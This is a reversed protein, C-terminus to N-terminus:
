LSREATTNRALAKSPASNANGLERAVVLGAQKTVVNQAEDRAIIRVDQESLQQVEFEKSTGNNEITVNLVTEGKQESSKTPTLSMQGRRLADLNDVGINSTTQADMVYEQGHVFGAVDGIGGNGTYGGNMYGAVNQKRIAQVNAMGAAVAAAAAAVGLAPGVYPIGAMAAYASTASQYTNIVAQAIAAAKGIRAMKKSNSNQLGALNGLFSQTTQLKQAQERNWVQMKMASYTQENILDAERMAKLQKYYQELQAKKSEIGEATGSTDLGMNSLFDNAVLPTDEKSLEGSARMSGMIGIEQMKNRGSLDDAKNSISDRIQQEKNLQQITTLQKRLEETELATVNIGDEQLKKVHQRLAAEVEREKSSMKLLEIEEAWERKLKGLPDLLDKYHEKLKATYNTHQEQTMLGAKLAADLTKQDETYRKQVQLLPDVIGLLREYENTLKELARAAEKAAKEASNDAKAKKGKAAKAAQAAPSSPTGMSESLDVGSGGRALRQKAKIQANHALNKVQEEMYGGQMAFGANLSDALNAGYEKYAKENVEKRQIKVADLMGLNVMSRLRNIGSIGANITNEIITMVANYMQNFATIVVSPIGTFVRVVGIGLGTLLGAIADVVRATGQLVGIFGGNIGDFFGSYANGAGETMAVHDALMASTGDKNVMFLYDFIDGVTDGLWQWADSLGDLAAAGVDALTTIDDIGANIEDGMAYLYLMVAAIATALAALPHASIIAFATSVARAFALVAGPAFAVAVGIGVAALAIAIVDLNNAILSMANYFAGSVISGKNLEGFFKKLANEMVTMGAGFTRGTKAYAEEIQPAAALYADFFEKSTLNGDIMRQRLKAISGDVGEIKQAVFQLIIPAGELISNFEEARVVGGGLAQGLQMLAGSAAQASTGQVGLSMSLLETFQLIDQQSTGLEKGSRALRSYLDGLADISTGHRQAIAYLEKQVALNEKLSKTSTAVQGEFKTWADAYRMVESIALYSGVASLVTNLANISKKAGDSSNAIDDLSRRVVRSGNERVRIDIIESAM